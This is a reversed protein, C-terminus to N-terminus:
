TKIRLQREIVRFKADAQQKFNRLENGSQILAVSVATANGGTDATRIADLEHLRDTTFGGRAFGGSQPASWAISADGGTRTRELSAIIPAVEPDRLMWQPAVWEGAHVVGVARHAPGGPTYGGEAFGAASTLIATHAMAAGEIAAAGLTAISAATAAPAWIAAMAAAVPAAAALQAARIANGAIAMVIQQTIWSAAMNVFAQVIAMVVSTGINRLAQGWTMTRMILGQLANAIGTNLGQVITGIGKAINNFGTDLQAVAEAAGGIVAEDGSQYSQAPSDMGAQAALSNEFKSAQRPPPTFTPAKELDNPNLGLGSVSSKYDNYADGAATILKLRTRELETRKSVDGESLMAEDVKSMWERIATLRLDYIKKAAAELERDRTLEIGRLEIGKQREMNGIKAEALSVEQPSSLQAAADRASSIEQDWRAAALKSLENYHARADGGQREYSQKVEQEQLRIQELSTQSYDQAFRSAEAERAKKAEAIEADLKSADEAAQLDAALQARKSEAAAVAAASDDKAQQLALRNADTRQQGTKNTQQFAKLAEEATERMQAALADEATKARAAAELAATDLAAIEAQRAALDGVGGGALRGRQQELAAVRDSPSLSRIREDRQRKNFSDLNDPLAALDADRKRKAAAERENARLQEPTLRGVDRIQTRLVDAQQVLAGRKQANKEKTIKQELELLDATIDRIAQQRSEESTLTALRARGAARLAETHQQTEQVFKAVHNQHVMWGYTAISVAALLSIILVFPNAMRLMQWVQMIRVQSLAFINSWKTASALAVAVAAIQGAMWSFRLTALVAGITLLAPGWDITFRIVGGIVRALDAIVIQAYGVAKSHGALAQTLSNTSSEMQQFIARTAEGWAEQIANQARNQAATLGEVQTQYPALKARLMDVITGAKIATQITSADLGIAKALINEGEVKGTSIQRLNSTIQEASLGFNLGARTAEITVAAWDRLAIGNAQAVVASQQFISIVSQLSQGTDSARKRLVDLVAASQQTALQMDGQASGAVAMARLSAETDQLMQNYRVGASLAAPIGELVRQAINIQLVRESLHRMLVMHKNIVDLSQQVASLAGTRTQFALLINVASTIM